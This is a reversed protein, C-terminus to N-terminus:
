NFFFIPLVKKYPTERYSKRDKTVGSMSFASNKATLRRVSLFLVPEIGKRVKLSIHQVPVGRIRCFNQTNKMQNKIKYNLFYLNRSIFQFLLSFIMRLPLFFSCLVSFKLFLLFCNFNKIKKTHYIITSFITKKHVNISVAFCSSCYISYNHPSLKFTCNM